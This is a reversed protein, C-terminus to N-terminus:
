YNLCKSNYNKIYNNIDEKSIHTRVWSNVELLRKRTDPVKTIEKLQKFTPQKGDLNVLYRLRFISYSINDFNKRVQDLIYQRALEAYQRRQEQQQSDNEDEIELNFIDANADILRKGNQLHQQYTNNRFALFFYNLCGQKTKDKLGKRSILDVCKIYTEQMVDEDFDVANLFAWQRLKRQYELWNDALVESFLKVDDQYENM